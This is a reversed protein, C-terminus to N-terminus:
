RDRGRLPGCSRPAARSCGGTPATSVDPSPSTTRLDGHFASAGTAFQAIAQAARRQDDVGAMAPPALALGPRHVREIREVLRVPDDVEGALGLDDIGGRRASAALLDCAARGALDGNPAVIRLGAGGDAEHADPRHIIGIRTRGVDM